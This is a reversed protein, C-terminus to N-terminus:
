FPNKYIEKIQNMKDTLKQIEGLSAGGARAKEMSMAAYQDM